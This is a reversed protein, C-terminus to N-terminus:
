RVVSPMKSKVFYLQLHQIFIQQTGSQSFLCIFAFAPSFLHSLGLSVQHTSVPSGKSGKQGPPGQPISVPLAPMRATRVLHGRGVFGEYEGGRRPVWPPGSLRYSWSFGPSLVDSDDSIPNM